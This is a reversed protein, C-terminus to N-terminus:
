SSGKELACRLTLRNKGGYTCTFLTLDWSDSGSLMAEADYGGITEVKSVVYRHANGEVDTFIVHSGVSVRKLPTFHRKYNHGAIILNGEAISGQYRGPAKKLLEPPEWNSLVPLDLRIEPIALYGIYTYGDITITAMESPVAAEAQMVIGATSKGGVAQELQLLAQQAERGARADEDENRMYWVAAGIAMLVGLM